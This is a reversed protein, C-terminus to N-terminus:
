YKIIFNLPLYPQMNNHSGGSGAPQLTISAYGTATTFSHYHQVSAQQYGPYDYAGASTVIVRNTFAGAIGLGYGGAEQGTTRMYTPHYHTNSEYGTNGTHQHGNDTLGHNHSPIQSLSLTETETGGIVGLIRKSLGSGTGASIPTKSRLDPVNFTTSGDGVGFPAITLAVGTTTATATKSITIANLNTISSISTGSQIGSGSIPMGVDMNTTSPINTVSTSNNTINGTTALSIISFLSAYTTRSYAIGDCLFFGAPPSFGVYSQISGIPVIIEEWGSNNYIYSKNFRVDSGGTYNYIQNLVPSNPFDIPM